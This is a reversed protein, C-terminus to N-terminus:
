RACERKCAARQLRVNPLVVPPWMPGRATCGPLGARGGGGRSGHPRRYAAFPRVWRVSCRVEDVAYESMSMYPLLVISM